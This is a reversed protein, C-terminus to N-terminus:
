KKLVLLIGDRITLIVSQVRPDEHAQRNLADITATDPDKPDLVEGNWLANDVVLIGGKRLLPIIAEYYNLYNQKDADIFAFDFPGELTPLTKIANGLKLIIKQGHPSQQFYNQAILAHEKRSECTILFGDKPLASAICLASYGTFTGLELCRKAGSIKVLFHLFAGEVPGCLMQPCETSTQTEQTLIKLIPEESDSLTHVYQNLAQTFFKEALM